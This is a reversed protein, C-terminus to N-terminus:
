ERGEVVSVLRNLQWVEAQEGRPTMLRAQDLAATDDDAMVVVPVGIIKGAQNLHYVRYEPM